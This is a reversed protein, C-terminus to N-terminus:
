SAVRDNQNVLHPFSEAVEHSEVALLEPHVSSAKARMAMKLAVSAALFLLPLCILRVILRHKASLNPDEELKPQIERCLSRDGTGVAKLFTMFRARSCSRQLEQQRREREEAPLDKLSVLWEEKMVHPNKQNFYRQVYRKSGVTNQSHMMYTSLRKATVATVGQEAIRVMWEFDFQEYDANIPGTRGVASKAVLFGSAPLNYHELVLQQKLEDATYYGDPLDTKKGYFSVPQKRADVVLTGTMALTISGAARSKKVLKVLVELWDPAYVEDDHALAIWEEAAEAYLANFHDVISAFQHERRTWHLDLAPFSAADLDRTQDTSNDDSVYVVFDKFTQQELSKLTRQLM